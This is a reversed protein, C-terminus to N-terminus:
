SEVFAQATNGVSGWPEALVTFAANRPVKLAQWKKRANYELKIYFPFEASAKRNRGGTM